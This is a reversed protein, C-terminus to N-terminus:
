FKRERMFMIGLYSSVYSVHYCMRFIHRMFAHQGPILFVPALAFSFVLFALSKTLSPLNKIPKKRMQNGTLAGILFNRKVYYMRKWRDPYVIEYVPAEECWVFRNGRKMARMFFDDDEGGTKGKEPLFPSGMGEFVASSLMANGTRLEGSSFITGTPHSSRNCIGSRVLWSPAGKDFHPKVPGVSGAVHYKEIAQLMTLLWCPGPYEDDDIFALFNGQATAVAMNRALSINQRPEIQFKVPINSALAFTDVVERATANSDNDVINISFSFNDNTQQVKLKELLVRLLDPRKFTCVCVCIHPKLQRDQM